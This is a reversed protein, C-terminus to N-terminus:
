GKQKTLYNIIGPVDEKSYITKGYIRQLESICVDKCLDEQNLAFVNRTPIYVNENKSDEMYMNREIFILKLDELISIATEISTLSSIGIGKKIQQKSPYSIKPLYESFDSSSMIFQKIYLYVGILVSKNISGTDSKTIREFDYISLQVFNDETYFLSKDPSLALTFISSPTIKLIDKNCSAYGEDIIEEKIIKRFDSYVSQNHSKSSYGCEDLLKNLTTNIEGFHEIHKRMYMVVLYFKLGSVGQHKKFDKKSFGVTIVSKEEQRYFICNEIIEIEKRQM